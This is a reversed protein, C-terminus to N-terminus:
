TKLCHKLEEIEVKVSDTENPYKEMRATLTRDCATWRHEGGDEMGCSCCAQDEVKM